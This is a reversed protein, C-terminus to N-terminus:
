NNAGGTDKDLNNVNTYEKRIYHVDGGEVNPLGWMDMVNNQTLIGRDFLQTSVNLKTSNSAFQVRSEALIISVGKEIEEDTFTMFTLVQSLQTLFPELKGEYYANFEDENFNNQIIKENTGFYSYVNNKIHNIQENDIVFQKTNIPQLDTIKSDYVMLGSANSDKSLNSSAFSDRLEDIDKQKSLTPIRAIFRIVASNKISNMIGQNNSHILNITTALPKNDEGFFDDKYYFKRLIGVREYEISASQGNNFRYRIYLKNELEVLECMQPVIPYYGDLEGFENYLPIIFVNNHAEYLTAIKLLFQSTVMYDNPKNTLKHMLRKYKGNDGVFKPTFKSVHTAFSNIASRTLEMEYIGGDNTTFVPAYANLTKFYTSTSTANTPEKNKSFINQFLGM